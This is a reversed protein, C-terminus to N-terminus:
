GHLFIDAPQEIEISMLLANNKPKYPFIFLWM